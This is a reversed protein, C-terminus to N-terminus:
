HLLVLDWTIINDVMKFCSMPVAKITGHVQVYLIPEIVFFSVVTFRSLKFAISQALKFLVNDDSWVFRKEIYFLVLHEIGVLRNFLYEHGFPCKEFKLVVQKIDPLWVNAIDLWKWWCIQM